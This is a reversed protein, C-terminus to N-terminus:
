WLSQRIKQLSSSSLPRLLLKFHQLACPSEPPSLAFSIPPSETILTRTMNWAKVLISLLIYKNTGMQLLLPGCTCMIHDSRLHCYKKKKRYDCQEIALDTWVHTIPSILVTNCYVFLTSSLLIQLSFVPKM